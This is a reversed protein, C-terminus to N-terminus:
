LLHAKIIVGARLDDLTGWTAEESLKKLELNFPDLKLGEAAVLSAERYRQLGPLVARLVELLTCM